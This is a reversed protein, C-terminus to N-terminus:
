HGKMVISWVTENGVKVKKLGQYSIETFIMTLRCLRRYFDYQMQLFNERNTTLYHKMLFFMISFNNLTSTFFSQYFLLESVLTRKHTKHTFIYIFLISNYINYIYYNNNSPLLHVLFFLFLSLRKLLRSKKWPCRESANTISELYILIVSTSSKKKALEKM